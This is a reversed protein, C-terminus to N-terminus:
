SSGRPIAKPRGDGGHAFVIDRELQERTMGKDFVANHSWRQFRELLDQNEQELRENENRLRQVVQQLHAIAADGNSPVEVAEMSGKLRSKAMKWANLIRSKKRLGPKTYLAGLETALLALYRNWTLKGTWGDLLQVALAIDADTLHHAM